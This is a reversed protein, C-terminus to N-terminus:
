SNNESIFKKKIYHRDKRSASINIIKPCGERDKELLCCNGCYYANETGKQNCIVCCEGFFGFNCDECIRM